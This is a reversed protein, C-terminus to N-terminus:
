CHFIKGAAPCALTAKTLHIFLFPKNCFIDVILNLNREFFFILYMNRFTIKYMYFYINRFSVNGCILMDNFYVDVHGTQGSKAVPKCFHPALPFWLIAAEHAVQLAVM